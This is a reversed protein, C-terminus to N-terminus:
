QCNERFGYYHIYFKTRRILSFNDLASKHLSITLYLDSSSFSERAADFNFLKDRLLIAEILCLFSPTCV